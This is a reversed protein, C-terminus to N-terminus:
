TTKRGYVDDLREIDSEELIKGTQVGIIILEESSKNEIRHISNQPIFVYQGQDLTMSHEDLQIAASGRVVIWHEARHNHKQLSLKGAPDVNLQKVKFGAEDIFSTHSGWPALVTTINELGKPHISNNFRILFDNVIWSSSNKKNDGGVSYEFIVNSNSTFAKYEPTNESDRDGGNAFIVKDSILLSKSIADCASNDSDNFFIVQDVCDLNEIIIKREDAPILFYGKKRLLWEDSNIGVILYGSLDKAAKFYEIHGSHIPDFGGTVLTCIKKM